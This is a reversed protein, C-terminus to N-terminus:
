CSQDGKAVPASQVIPAQTTYDDMNLIYQKGKKATPNIILPAKLNLTSKQFPKKITVITRLLVDKESKIHLSEQVQEDLKFEYDQYFHHPNTVIFALEPTSLSQLIQFLPNGPFDILAFEIEDVFGPLGSSFEIKQEDQVEMEGLYKTQIAM